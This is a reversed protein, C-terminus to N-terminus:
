LCDAQLGIEPGKSSLFEVEPMGVGLNILQSPQVIELMARHGIIRREDLLMPQIHSSPVRIEASLSADYLPSSIVQRHKDPPAVVVQVATAPQLLKSTDPM